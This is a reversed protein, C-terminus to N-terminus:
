EAGLAQEEVRMGSGCSACAFPLPPPAHASGLRMAEDGRAARRAGVWKVGGGNGLRVDSVARPPGPAGRTPPPPARSSATRRPSPLPLLYHHDHAHAHTTHLDKLQWSGGSTRLDDSRVAIISVLSTCKRWWSPDVRGQGVAVGTCGEVRNYFDCTISLSIQFQCPRPLEIRATLRTFQTPKSSHAFRTPPSPAQPRPRYAWPPRSNSASGPAMSHLNTRRITPPNRQLRWKSAASNPWISRSLQTTAADACRPKWRLALKRVYDYQHQSLPLTLAGSIGGRGWCRQKRPLWGLRPAALSSRSRAPHRNNNNNSGLASQWLAWGDRPYQRRRLSM